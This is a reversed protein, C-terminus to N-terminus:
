SPCPWGLVAVLFAEKGVALIDKLRTELGVMFLLFVAGLEALFELIEGEHVLGLLAPGVLVGALVEGIVVPQNLRKFIFAMVQAALLLYFIELLHEAGHMM